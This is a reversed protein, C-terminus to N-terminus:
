QPELWVGFESQIRIAELVRRKWYYSEEEVVKAGDWDIQHKHTYTHVAIDNMDDSRKVAQRHEALRKKIPEQKVSLRKVATRVHCSM